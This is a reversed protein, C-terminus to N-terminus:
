ARELVTAIGQGGGICQTALAYHGGDRALLAAAKGVIRAGTAGLPHGIAIAGGDKNITEDKLGLDRICAIAQSAFAENIEVVDLDSASVGARALAKKSSGIPGLGMTEPECGSIGVSKIRALIKLGHKKAFEESTVLVAAAGDTLPSATGATVTGDKDFAPKLGSLVEETTDPRILGDETVDGAKTHIPVIEDALRGAARAEAAKKQSAVAFKEQEARTIQYKQAVNEATQGMGMYAGPRAAALEPNPLPNYGGMPVRSMSEIGACIFAEGAGIQIQGMAIHIASMSSGCFRNVTMGGVSLPLDALLGILRAVNMGQEGEPFACGLIIDEIEAPDVGSREILGRIVQAAIDDPRVRALAGKGAQTFPSRAYGAIVINTM